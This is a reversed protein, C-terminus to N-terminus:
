GSFPLWSGCYGYMFYWMRCLGREYLDQWITMEEEFERKVSIGLIM